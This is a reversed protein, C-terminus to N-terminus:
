KKNKAAKIAAAKAEAQKKEEAAKDAEAKDAAAKEAAAKKKAIAEAEMAEAKKEADSKVGEPAESPDVKLVTFGRKLFQAKVDKNHAVALLFDTHEDGLRGKRKRNILVSSGPFRLVDRVSKKDLFIPLAVDLSIPTKDSM